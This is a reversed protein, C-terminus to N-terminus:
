VSFSWHMKLVGMAEELTKAEGGPFLHIWSFRCSTGHCYKLYLMLADLRSALRGEADSAEIAAFPGKENLSELMNHM